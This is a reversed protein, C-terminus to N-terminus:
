SLRLPLQQVFVILFEFWKYMQLTKCILNTFNCDIQFGPVSNASILITTNHPGTRLPQTLHQLGDMQGEM